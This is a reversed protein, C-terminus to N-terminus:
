QKINNLIEAAIIEDANLNALASMNNSMEKLKEEDGSIKIIEKMLCAEVEADKVMVAAGKKVLSQANVVQHDEAAYPYPVLIAPKGVVCLESLTMAGSRCVVIDAASYAYEMNNIFANTWIDSSEEEIAAATNAFEKGTQWILQLENKKFVDANKEIARNISRAGLSGGTVLITKKGAKLGFFSLAEEKSVHHSLSKRVPNGTKILNKKYFYKEMGDYAVFVRTAKKGLMINSKGPLSNSEHIFSAIGRLQASKLVPFSSYGGVGIVADPKFTKFIQYVEFFSSIMKFPLAINKWLSSRNYGAITLGKIEYGAEPVKDMEMKGRAGVFLIKTAPESKKLANAISLAPFIHGGTGGGAVIIRLPIKRSTTKQSITELENQM